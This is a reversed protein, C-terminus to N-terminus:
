KDNHLELVRLGFANMHQGDLKIFRQICDHVVLALKKLIISTKAMALSFTLFMGPRCVNVKPLLKSPFQVM